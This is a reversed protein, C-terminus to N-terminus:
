VRYVGLSALLTDAPPATPASRYPPALCARSTSDQCPHFVGRADSRASTGLDGVYAVAIPVFSTIAAKWLVFRAEQWKLSTTVQTSKHMKSRHKSADHQNHVFRKAASAECESAM